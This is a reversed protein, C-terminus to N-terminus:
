VDESTKKFQISCLIAYVVTMVVVAVVLTRYSIWQYAFYNISGLGNVLWCRNTNVGFLDMGLGFLMFFLSYGGGVPVWFLFVAKGINNTNRCQCKRYGPSVHLLVCVSMGIVFFLAMNEGFHQIAALIICFDYHATFSPMCAPVLYTFEIIFASISMIVYGYTQYKASSTKPRSPYFLGINLFILLSMTMIASLISLFSYFIDAIDTSLM